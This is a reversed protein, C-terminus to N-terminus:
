ARLGTERLYVRPDPTGPVIEPHNGPTGKRIGGETKGASGQLLRYESGLQWRFKQQIRGASLSEPQIQRVPKKRIKGPQHRYFKNFSQLKKRIMTDSLNHDFLYHYESMIEDLRYKHPGLKIIIGGTAKEKSWFPEKLRVNSRLQVEVTQGIKAAAYKKMIKFRTQSIKAPSFKKEVGAAVKRRVRTELSQYSVKPNLM